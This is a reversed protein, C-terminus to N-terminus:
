AEDVGIQANEAIRELSLKKNPINDSIEGSSGILCEQQMVVSPYFACSNPKLVIHGFGPLECCVPANQIQNGVYNAYSGM